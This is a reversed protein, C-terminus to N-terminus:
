HLLHVHCHSFIALQQYLITSECVYMSVYLAVHLYPLPSTCVCVCVCVCVCWVAAGGKMYVKIVLSLAVDKNAASSSAGEAEKRTERRGRFAGESGGRIQRMSDVIGFVRWNATEEGEIQNAVGNSLTLVVLDREVPHAYDRAQQQTLYGHCRLQRIIGVDGFISEVTSSFPLLLNSNDRM